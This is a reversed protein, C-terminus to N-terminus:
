KTSLIRERDHSYYFTHGCSVCTRLETGNNYAVPNSYKNCEPCRIKQYKQRSSDQPHEPLAVAYNQMAISPAKGEIFFKYLVYAEHVISGPTVYLQHLVSDIDTGKPMCLRQADIKNKLNNLQGVMYKYSKRIETSTCVFTNEDYNMLIKVTYKFNDEQAFWSEEDSADWEKREPAALGHNHGCVPCDTDKSVWCGCETCKVGVAKYFRVKRGIYVWSLLIQPIYYQIIIRVYGIPNRLLKIPAMLVAALIKSTVYIIGMDLAFDAFKELHQKSSM